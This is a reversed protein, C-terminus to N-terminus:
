IAHTVHNKVLPSSRVHERGSMRWFGTTKCVARESM